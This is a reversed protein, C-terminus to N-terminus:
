WLRYGLYIILLISIGLVIKVMVKGACKSEGIGLDMILHRLGAIIHYGLASLTLWTILKIVPMNFLSQVRVFDASSQLSYQLLCLFAPIMFFLLVGSIRHLISIIATMPFSITFLNLNIPREKM